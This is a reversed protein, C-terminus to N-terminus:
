VEKDLQELADRMEHIAEWCDKNGSNATLWEVLDGVDEAPIHLVAEPNGNGWEAYYSM